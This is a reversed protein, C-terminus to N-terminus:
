STIRFSCDSNKDGPYEVRHSYESAKSLDEGEQKSDWDYIFWFTKQVTYDTPYSYTCSM